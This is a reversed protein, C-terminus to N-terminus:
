YFIDRSPFVFFTEIQKMFEIASLVSLSEGKM